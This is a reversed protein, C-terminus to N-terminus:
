QSFIAWFPKLSPRLFDNHGTVFRVECKELGQERALAAGSEAPHLTLVKSEKTQSVISLPLSFEWLVWDYIHTIDDRSGIKYIKKAISEQTDHRDVVYTAGLSRLHAENQVSAVTIIRGIGALSAFQIALRGVSSGGGIIVVTQAKPDISEKKAISGEGALPPAPFGFGNEPHFLVEFSTRANVPFIVADDMAVGEPLRRMAEVDLIAYEQLGASDPTSYM